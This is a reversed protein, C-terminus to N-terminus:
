NVSMNYPLRAQIGEMQKLEMLYQYYRYFDGLENRLIEAKTQGTFQDIIEKWPDKQEPLSKITYEELGADHAALEIAKNIGGIEDILGSKKAELASWIRGQGLSDVKEVTMDRGKAVYHLFEDYIKQIENEIVMKQYSPLPRTVNPFDSNKNTMTYDFTIGLKNDFFKQFNPFIGFVGISGTLTLPDAVIKDGMCSIWYGGSAALDGMSIIFPKKASALEVERRIVESALASGGPSNVRMVIAKVKDNTRAQRIAKSIRESGINLDDGKGGSIQGLAYIVAIKDRTYKRPEPDKARTYKGIDVASIDEDEGIGLKQRLEDLLQDKYYLEDDSGQLSRGLLRRRRYQAM